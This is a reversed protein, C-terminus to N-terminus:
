VKGPPMTPPGLTAGDAAFKFQERYLYYGDAVTFAVEVTREDLARAEFRFAQEPPLFDEAAAALRPLLLVLGIALGTLLARLRFCM